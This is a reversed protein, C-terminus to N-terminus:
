HSLISRQKGSARDTHLIISAVAESASEPTVLRLTVTQALSNLDAPSMRGLLEAIGHKEKETLM